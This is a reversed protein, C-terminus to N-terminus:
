SDLHAYAVNSYLLLMPEIMFTLRHSFYYHVLEKARDPKFPVPRVSIETAEAQMMQPKTLLLIYRTTLSNSWHIKSGKVMHLLPSLTNAETPLSSRKCVLRWHPFSRLTETWFLKLM